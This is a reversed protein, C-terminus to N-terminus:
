IRFRKKTKGKENREKEEEKEEHINGKWESAM